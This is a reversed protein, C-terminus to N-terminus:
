DPLANCNEQASSADFRARKGGEYLSLRKEFERFTYAEVQESKSYEQLEQIARRQTAAARAFDGRGALVAALTDTTYPWAAESASETVMRFAKEANGKYGQQRCAANIWAVENKALASIWMSEASGSARIANGFHREAQSCSFAVAKGCVHFNGLMFSAQQNGQSALKRLMPLAESYRKSSLLAQVSEPLEADAAFAKLCVASIALAILLKQLKVTVVGIWRLCDVSLSDVLWQM